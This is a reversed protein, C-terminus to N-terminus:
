MMSIPATASCCNEIMLLMSITEADIPTICFMLADIWEASEIAQKLKAHKEEISDTVVIGLGAISICHPRM